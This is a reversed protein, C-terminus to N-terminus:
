QKVAQRIHKGMNASIEVLSNRVMFQPRTGKKQIAASIALAVQMAADTPLYRGHKRVGLKNKRATRVELAKLRKAVSKAHRPTSIGMSLRPFRKRLKGNDKLGQKGRLKVWELLRELNPTHPASGVEVAKAHPADVITRRFSRLDSSSSAMASTGAFTEAHVSGHLDGFAKPTRKRIMPVAEKAVRDLAKDIRGEMKRIRTQVMGFLRGPTTRIESM